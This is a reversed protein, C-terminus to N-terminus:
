FTPAVGFLFGHAWLVGAFLVLGVGVAIVDHMVKPTAYSPLKGRRTSSIISFVSYLAFSGFLYLAARDGNAILHVVAWLLVGIIMPHKITKRIHGKLEAAVQLIFVIPMVALALHSAWAPSPWLEQYDMRAYGMVILVLGILAVLAYAGKYPMEGMRGILRGRVTPLSPMVHLGFFIGIGLWIM